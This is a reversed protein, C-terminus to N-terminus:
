TRVFVKKESCEHSIQVCFLLDVSIMRICLLMLLKHHVNCTLSVRVRLKYTFAIREKLKQKNENKQLGYCLVTFYTCVCSSANSSRLDTAALRAARVCACACARAGRLLLPARRRREHALARGGRGRRTQAAQAAHVAHTERGVLAFAEELGRPGCGAPRGRGGGGGRRRAARRHSACATAAHAVRFPRQQERELEAVAGRRGAARHGVARCEHPGVPDGNHLHAAM